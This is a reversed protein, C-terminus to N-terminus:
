AARRVKSRAWEVLEVRDYRLSGAIDYVPPGIRRHALDELLRVSVGLIKAAQKRSVFLQEVGSDDDPEVPTERKM